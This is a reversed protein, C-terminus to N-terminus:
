QAAGTAQQIRNLQEQQAPTLSGADGSAALSSQLQQLEDETM